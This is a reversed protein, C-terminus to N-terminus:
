SLFCSLEQRFAVQGQAEGIAQLGSVTLAVGPVPQRPHQPPPAEWSGGWCRMGSTIQGQKEVCVCASRQSMHM